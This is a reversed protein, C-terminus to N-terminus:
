VIGDERMKAQWKPVIKTTAAKLLAMASEMAEAQRRKDAM